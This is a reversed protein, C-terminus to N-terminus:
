GGISRSFVLFFGVLTSSGSPNVFRMQNNLITPQIFLESADSGSGGVASLSCPYETNTNINGHFFVYPSVGLDSPLLVTVTAGPGIIVTGSLMIQEFKLDPQMIFNAAPGAQAVDVGPQSLWAGYTSFAPHLGKLSRSTM